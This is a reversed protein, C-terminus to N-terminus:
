NKGPLRTWGKTYWAIDQISSDPIKASTPSFLINEKKQFCFIVHAFNPISLTANENYFSDYFDPKFVKSIKVKSLTNKSAKYGNPTESVDYIEGIFVLSASEFSEKITPENACKCAFIHLPVFLSLLFTYKM